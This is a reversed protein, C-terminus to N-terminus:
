PLLDGLEVDQLANETKSESISAGNGIMKKETLTVTSGQMKLSIDYNSLIFKNEM